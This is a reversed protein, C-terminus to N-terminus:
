AVTRAVLDAAADAAALQTLAEPAPPEEGLLERALERASVVRTGDPHVLEADLGARAAAWRNHEYHGRDTVRPLAHEVLDRVVGVLLATRALSTPQDAIRIELTGLRPHPRVDWWIRTHDELVGLEVLREVWEEWSAYDAFVPPAGARPLQALIGARNSLMGTPVGDIFPSNASLALVVPLWALVAELREHCREASEVGVHVHLGSVGQRRAVYGIGELMHLYREEQVVPLSDLRATPHAGAAAIVLGNARAIRAAAGRLARLASVAEDVDACIATNLEVISAHLETKLTGPLELEAAGEVLAAVGAAPQLTQADLIMVEEEVGLSYPSSDGFHREIV